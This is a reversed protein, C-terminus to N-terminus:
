DKTIEGDTCYVTYNGTNSDWNKNKEIAIWETNTGSYTISSLSNCYAFAVEGISTVSSPITIANLSTCGAFTADEISM